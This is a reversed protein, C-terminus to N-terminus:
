VFEVVVFLVTWDGVLTDDPDTPDRILEFQAYENGNLNLAPRTVVIRDYQWLENAPLDVLALALGNWAGMAGNDPISRTYVTPRVAVAAGPATEARSVIHFRVESVERDVYATWGVGEATTDDFLRVDLAANNSDAALAALANVAWDASNPDEFDSASFFPPYLQGLIQGSPSQRILM